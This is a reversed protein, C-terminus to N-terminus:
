SFDLQPLSLFILLCLLTLSVFTPCPPTHSVFPYFL